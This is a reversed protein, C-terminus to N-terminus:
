EKRSCIEEVINIYKKGLDLKDFINLQAVGMANNAFNVEAVKAVITNETKRHALIDVGSSLLGINTERSVIQHAKVIEPIVAIFIDYIYSALDQKTIGENIDRQTLIINELIETLACFEKESFREALVEIRSIEVNLLPVVQSSGQSMNAAKKKDLAIRRFFGQLKTIRNGEEDLEDFFLARVDGLNALNIREQFIIKELKYDENKSRCSALSEQLAAEIEEELDVVNQMSVFGYGGYFNDPKLIFGTEQYKKAWDFLCYGGGQPSTLIKSKPLPDNTLLENLEYLFYDPNVGYLFERCFSKETHKICFEPSHLIHCHLKEQLVALVRMKSKYGEDNPPMLRNHIITKESIQFKRKKVSIYEQLALYELKEAAFYQAKVKELSLFYKEKLEALNDLYFEQLEIAGDVIEEIQERALVAVKGFKELLPLIVMSVDGSSFINAQLLDQKIDEIIVLHEM